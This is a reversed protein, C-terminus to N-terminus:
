NIKGGSKGCPLASEPCEGPYIASALEVGIASRRRSWGEDADRGGGQPAAACYRAWIWQDILTGRRPDESPIGEQLTKQMGPYWGGRDRFATDAMHGYNMAHHLQYRGFAEADDVELL